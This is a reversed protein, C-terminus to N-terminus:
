CKYCTKVPVQEVAEAVRKQRVFKPQVGPKVTAQRAAVDVKSIVVQVVVVIM